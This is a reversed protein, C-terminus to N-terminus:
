KRRRVAVMAILGCAALACTAPEPVQPGAIEGTGNANFGTVFGGATTKSGAAIQASFSVTVPDGLQLGFPLNQVFTDSVAAGFTFQVTNSVDIYTVNVRDLDVQIYQAASPGTGVLLDFYGPNGVTWLNFVTNPASSIGTVDPIFVDLSVDTTISGQLVGNIKFDATTLPDAFAPNRGGGAPSGADVISSGNYVLNMGTFEISAITAASVSAATLALAVTALSAGCCLLQSVLHRVNM